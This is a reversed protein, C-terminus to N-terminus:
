CRQSRRLKLVRLKRRRLALAAKKRLLKKKATRAAQKASHAHRVLVFPANHRSVADLCLKGASPKLKAFYPKFNKPWGRRNGWRRPFPKLRSMTQFAVSHGVLAIPGTSTRLSSVDKLFDQLRDDAEEPEESGWWLGASLRSFDVDCIREPQEQKLWAKLRSVNLGKRANVERLRSDVIIRHNPFAALATLLARRLPSCFVKRVPIKEFDDPKTTLEFALQRKGTSSLLVDGDQAKRKLFRKSLKTM